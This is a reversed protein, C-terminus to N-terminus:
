FGHIRLVAVYELFNVNKIGFFDYFMLLAAIM